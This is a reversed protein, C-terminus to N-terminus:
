QEEQDDNFLYKKMLIGALFGGFGANLAIILNGLPTQIMHYNKALTGFIEFVFAFAVM